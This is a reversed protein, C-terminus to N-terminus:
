SLVATSFGVLGGELEPTGISTGRTGISWVQLKASQSLSGERHLNVQFPSVVVVTSLFGQMDYQFM